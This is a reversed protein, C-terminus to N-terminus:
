RGRRPLKTSRNRSYPLMEIKLQRTVTFQKILYVVYLAGLGFGACSGSLEEISRVVNSRRAFVIVKRPVDKNRIDRIINKNYM